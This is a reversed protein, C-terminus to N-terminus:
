LYPIFLLVAGWVNPNKNSNGNMVSTDVVGTVDKMSNMQLKTHKRKTVQLQAHSLNNYEFIKSLVTDRQFDKQRAMCLKYTTLLPNDYKQCVGYTPHRKAHYRLLKMVYYM